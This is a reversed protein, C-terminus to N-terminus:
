ASPGELAGLCVQAMAQVMGPQQGLAPHLVISLGHQQRAQELLPPVDRLVHGSGGLFLPFVDVAKIGEHALTALASPLDPPMLELFALRVTWEPRSQSLHAALQEFPAAWAPNRAGHALLVLARSM